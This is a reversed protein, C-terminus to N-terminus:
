KIKEKKIKECHLTSLRITLPILSGVLFATLLIISLNLYYISTPWGIRTEKYTLPWGHNVVIETTTDELTYGTQISEKEEHSLMISTVIIFIFILQIFFSKSLYFTNPM